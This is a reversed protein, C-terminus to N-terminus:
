CGFNGERFSKETEEEWRWSSAIGAKDLYSTRLMKRTEPDTEAKYASYLNRRIEAQQKQEIGICIRMFRQRDDPDYHDQIYEVMLTYLTHPIQIRKKMDPEDWQERIQRLLWQEECYEKEARIAGIFDLLHDSEDFVDRDNSYPTNGDKIWALLEKKEEKTIDPHTALYERVDPRSLYQNRM